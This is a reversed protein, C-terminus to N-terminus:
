PLTLKVQFAYSVSVPRGQFSVPRYHRSTLAELVAEDMHPLGKIIRCREVTGEQTITCRAIVTGSVRAALAERTYQLQAGSLLQPPTMGAGFPLVEEGQPGVPGNVQDRPTGEGGWPDGIALPNGITSALATTGTETAAPPTPEDKPTEDVPLPTPRTPQVLEPRPKPRPSTRPTSAPPATPTPHPAVRPTPQAIPRPLWLTCGPQEPEQLVGGSLGLVGALVGAHLMLSVWMGAGFRGAGVAPPEIVSQFM